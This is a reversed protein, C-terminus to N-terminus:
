KLGRILTLCIKWVFLQTLVIGGESTSTMGFFIHHEAGTKSTIWWVGVKSWLFKLKM